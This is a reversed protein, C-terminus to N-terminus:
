ELGKEHEGFDLGEDGGGVCGVGEDGGGLNVVLAEEQPNHKLKSHVM